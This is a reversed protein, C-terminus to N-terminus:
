VNFDVVMPSGLGVPTAVLQLPYTGADKLSKSSIIVQDLVPDVEVTFSVSTLPAKPVVTYTPGCAPTETFKFPLIM